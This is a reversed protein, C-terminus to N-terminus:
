GPRRLLSRREKTAALAAVTDFATRMPASNMYDVVDQDAEGVCCFRWMFFAAVDWLEGSMLAEAFTTVETPTCCWYSAPTGDQKIGSAGSGGDRWNIGPVVSMGLTDADAVMNARWTAVPGFVDKYQLWCGDVYQWDYGDPEWPTNRGAAHDILSDPTDRIVCPLTPWYNKSYAGLSDLVDSTITDGWSGPWTPEDILYHAVITGDEIYEEIGLAYTADIFAKWKDIDFFGDTLLQGHLGSFNQIVQHGASRADNLISITAPTVICGGSWNPYEALWSSYCGSLGYFDYYWGCPIGSRNGVPLM